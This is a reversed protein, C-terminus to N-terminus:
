YLQSVQLKKSCLHAPMCWDSFDDFDQAQGFYPKVLKSKSFKLIHCQELLIIQTRKGSKVLGFNINEGELCPGSGFAALQVLPEHEV